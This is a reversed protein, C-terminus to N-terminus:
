RMMQFRLKVRDLGIPPWGQLVRLGASRHPGHRVAEDLRHLALRAPDGVAAQEGGHLGDHGVAAPAAVQLAGDAGWDALDGVEAAHLHPEPWRM